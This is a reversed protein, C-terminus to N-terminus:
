FQMSRQARPALPPGAHPDRGWLDRTAGAERSLAKFRWPIGRARSAPDAPVPVLLYGGRMVGDRRRSATSKTGGITPASASPNLRQPRQGVLTSLSASGGGKFDLPTGGTPLTIPGISYISSNGGASYIRQHEIETARRRMDESLQAVVAQRYAAEKLEYEQRQHERREKEEAQWALFEKERREYEEGHMQYLLESTSASTEPAPRADGMLRKIRSSDGGGNLYQDSVRLLQDTALQEEPSRPLDQEEHMQQQVPTQMASPGRASALRAEAEAKEVKALAEAERAEAAARLAAEREMKEAHQKAEAQAAAELAEAAALAEAARKAEEAIRAAEAAASDAETSAKAGEATAEAAVAKAEATAIAEAAFKAEAAVRAEAGLTAEALAKAEAAELAAKAAKAEAETMQAILAERTADREELAKAAAMTTAAARAAANRAAMAEEKAAKAM